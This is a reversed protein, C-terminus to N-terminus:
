RVSRWCTTLIHLLFLASAMLAPLGVHGGGSLGINHVGRPYALYRSFEVILVPSDVMAWCIIMPM